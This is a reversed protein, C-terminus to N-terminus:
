NRDFWIERTERRWFLEGRLQKGGDKMDMTIYMTPGFDPQVEFSVKTGKVFVQVEKPGDGFDAGGGKAVFTGKLAEDIRLTFGQATCKCAGTYEGVLGMKDQALVPFLLCFIALSTVLKLLSKMTSRRQGTAEFLKPLFRYTGKGM